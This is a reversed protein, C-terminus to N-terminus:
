KQELGFLERVFQIFKIRESEPKGNSSERISVTPNHLLKNVLSKTLADVKQFDEPSFKNRYKELELQRIQEFRERLLKITPAVQHAEYWKIFNKLEEDIIRQVKPIENLRREYNAKAISELSDIDELFVNEIDKVAPEVNRPVGIDIILIPKNGRRSMASKVQSLTLIYGSVTVSSIVVDVEVLKSTIEELRIVKGNFQEALKQAREITRNAIYLESVGHSILHKATLEATEGAGILMGKKKSLDAFIKEALEVAAYSVSVAGESISTESKARKGTRFATHFVEHLLTGVVGCKVAVEYADKVQGLIQVDGVLMSDIGSAVELLHRVADYSRLIYFHSQNVVGGAGKKLILFDILQEPKIEDGKLVGYLETRNCTSLLVGEKLFLQVIEPLVKETEDLTYYLKERIELSATKHNLGVLLLDMNM